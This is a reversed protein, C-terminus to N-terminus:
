IASMDGCLVHCLIDSMDGCFVHCLIASMDGCFVHCLIASMKGCFVHCLIASMHGCFVHCLIASMDCSVFLFGFNLLVLLCGATVDRKRKPLPLASSNQSLPGQEGKQSMQGVLLIRIWNWASPVSGRM